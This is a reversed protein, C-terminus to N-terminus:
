KPFSVIITTENESSHMSIKGGQTEAIMRASYTGIGSGSGKGSTAYKDFFKDRMNEPVSGKNTISIFYKSVNGLDILLKENKPSAEIANKILNALMSYMLFEEGPIEFLSDKSIPHNNINIEVALQRYNISYSNEQLVQHLISLIEVQEPHFVYTGKEMKFMDLSINIMNLVRYGAEKAFTISAIQDETLNDDNIMESLNIIPSLPSKLDHRMIREVDERLQMNEELIEKERKIAMQANVRALLVPPRIPKTIYDAGGMEFGKIENDVGTQGTIFIIPIGKTEDDAKLHQCIEYGNLEPMIIDLLILDPKIKKIIKLAIKGSIAAKVIYKDSLISDIVDINVPSDDVVLITQKSNKQNMNFNEGKNNM